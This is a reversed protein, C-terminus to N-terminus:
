IYIYPVTLQGKDKENRTPVSSASCTGAEQIGSEHWGCVLKDDQLSLLMSEGNQM